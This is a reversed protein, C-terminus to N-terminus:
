PVGGGLGNHDAIVLVTLHVARPLQEGGLAFHEADIGLDDRNPESRFDRQLLLRREEPREIGLHDARIPETEDIQTDRFARVHDVQSQAEEVRREHAAGLGVRDARVQGNRVIRTISLLPMEILAVVGVHVRGFGPIQFDTTGRDHHSNEVGSGVPCVVVHSRSVVAIM